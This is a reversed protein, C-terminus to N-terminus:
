FSLKAPHRRHVHCVMTIKWNERTNPMVTFGVSFKSTPINNCVPVMLVEASVRKTHQTNEVPLYKPGQKQSYNEM